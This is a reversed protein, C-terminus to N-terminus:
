AGDDGQTADPEAQPVHAANWGRSEAVIQVFRQRDSERSLDIPLRELESLAEDLMRAFGELQKLQSIEDLSTELHHVAFRSFRKAEKELEDVGRDVAKLIRLLEGSLRELRQDEPSNEALLKLIAFLPWFIERQSRKIEQVVPRLADWAPRQIYSAFLQVAKRATVARIGAFFRLGQRITSLTQRLESLSPFWPAAVDLLAKLVQAPDDQLDHALVGEALRQMTPMLSEMRLLGPAFAPALKGALDRRRVATEHELAELTGSLEVFRQDAEGPSGDVLLPELRSLEEQILRHQAEARAWRELSQAEEDPSEEVVTALVDAITSLAEHTRRLTRYLLFDARHEGTEWPSLDSPETRDLSARYAEFGEVSRLKEEMASVLGGAEQALRAALDRVSTPPYELLRQLEPPVSERIGESLVLEKVYELRPSYSLRQREHERM